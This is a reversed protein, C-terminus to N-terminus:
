AYLPEQAMATTAFAFLLLAITRLRYMLRTM